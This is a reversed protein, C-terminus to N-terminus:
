GLVRWSAFSVGAGPGAAALLPSPTRFLVVADGPASGAVVALAIWLLPAPPGAPFVGGLRLRGGLSSARVVEDSSGVSLLRCLFEKWQAQGVGRRNTASAIIQSITTLLSSSCVVLLIRYSAPSAEPPPRGFGGFVYLRLQVTETQLCMIILPPSNVYDLLIWAHSLNQRRNGEQVIHSSLRLQSRILLAPAASRPPQWERLLLQQRRPVRSHVVMVGHLQMCPTVADTNAASPLGM